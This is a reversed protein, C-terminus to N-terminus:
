KKSHILSIKLILLFLDSKDYNKEVKILLVKGYFDIEGFYHQMERCWAFVRIETVALRHHLGIIANYLLCTM